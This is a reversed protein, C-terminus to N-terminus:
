VELVPAFDIWGWLILADLHRWSVWKQIALLTDDLCPGTAYSGFKFEFSERYKRHYYLFQKVKKRSFINSKYIGTQEPNESTKLKWQLQDVKQKRSRRPPDDAASKLNALKLSQISCTVERRQVQEPKKSQIPYANYGSLLTGTGLHAWTQFSFFVKVKVPKCEGYFTFNPMKVDYDHLLLFDVFLFLM